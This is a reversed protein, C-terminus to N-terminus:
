KGGKKKKKGVGRSECLWNAKRLLIKSLGNTLKAQKSGGHLEIQSLEHQM